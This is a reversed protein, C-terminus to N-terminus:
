GIDTGCEPCFKGRSKTGCQPCYQTTEPTEDFISTPQQPMPQPVPQPQYTPQYYAPSVPKTYGIDKYKFLLISLILSILWAVIIVYIGIEMKYRSVAIFGFLALPLLINAILSLIAGVLVKDQSILILAILLLLVSPGSVIWAPVYRKEEQYGEDYDFTTRIYSAIPFFSAVIM